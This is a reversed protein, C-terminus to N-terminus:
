PHRVRITAAFRWKGDTKEACLFHEADLIRGDKCLVPLNLPKELLTANETKLFRSFGIHHVDRMKPPIIVTIPQGLVDARNWGYEREFAENIFFIRGEEDM